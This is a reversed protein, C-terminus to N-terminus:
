GGMYGPVMIKEAQARARSMADHQAREAARENMAQRLERLRDAGYFEATCQHDNVLDQVARESSPMEARALIEAAQQDRYAQDYAPAPYQGELYRYMKGRDVPPVEYAPYEATKPVFAQGNFFRVGNIEGDFGPNPATVLWGEQDAYVQHVEQQSAALAARLEALEKEKEALTQELDAKTDAM